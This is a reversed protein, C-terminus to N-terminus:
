MTKWTSAAEENTAWKDRPKKSEATVVFAPHAEDIVRCMLSMVDFADDKKVAPFGICGELVHDLWEAREPFIVKGLSARAQFARARIAKARKSRDAFGKKSSGESAPSGIPTVWELRTYAKRETMRKKLFPEISKRIVGGEGFAVLPKHLKFKDILKDIWVDSNTQGYWWDIVILNDDPDVGFVGHETYDPEHQEDEPETVAYDSAMYIRVPPLKTWREKFWPRQIFRGGSARIKWNGGLLRAREVEPLAMLRTRYGPDAKQLAPNDELKASIFTLSMPQVGAECLPMLAERTDGWELVDGIRIFWRLVGSREPIAEGTEEDIWWDILKCVFSDPDPNCTARMYPAVGSVSRMRSVLYWFQAAEFHTLEDFGIFAYQKGQHDYVDKLHQLHLYQILAGSPFTAQLNPSEVLKAGLTRYITQAEEWISGAGTLQPSTRRFIVGGFKANASHRVSELVLGFTKGGGAAGGYIAIDAPSSLFAEQPGKQPRIEM